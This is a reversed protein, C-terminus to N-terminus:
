AVLANTLEEFLKPLRGGFLTRARIIGGRATFDRAESLDDTTAEVNIALHVRGEAGL